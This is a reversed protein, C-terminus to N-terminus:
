SIGRGPVYGQDAMMQQEHENALIVGIIKLVDRRGQLNVLFTNYSLPSVHEKISKRMQWQLYQSCIEPADAVCVEQLMATAHQLPWALPWHRKFSVSSDAALDLLDSYKKGNIFNAYPM